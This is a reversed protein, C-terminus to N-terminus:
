NGILIFHAVNAQFTHSVIKFSKYNSNSRGGRPVILRNHKGQYIEIDQIKLQIKSKIYIWLLTPM